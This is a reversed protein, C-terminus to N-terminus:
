NIKRTGSCDLIISDDVFDHTVNKVTFWNTRLKKEDTYIKIDENIRPIPGIFTSFEIISYGTEIKLTM